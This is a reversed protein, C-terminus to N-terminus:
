QVSYEDLNENKGELKAFSEMVASTSFAWCAGCIGQDYPQTVFGEKYWDKHHPLEEL